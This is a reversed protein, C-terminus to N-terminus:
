VVHTSGKLKNYDEFFNVYSKKVAEAGSIIVESSCRSAAIAAAMVIRHDNFGDVRKLNLDLNLNDLFKEGHIILGDPLEEAICSSKSNARGGLSNIMEAAAKIRDSEKLRLRAGNYFETKGDAFAAVVALIPLLDPTADIDIKQAKLKGPSVTINNNKIEVKAGFNKLFELIKKDGQASNIDLGSVSIEANLAGAALFFAAGSWDGGVSIDEPSKFKNYSAIEYINKNLKVNVGFDNMAKLTINVYDASKLPSTLIIESDDDLVPLALLLGTIYQSSIDGAIFFKGSKLKGNTEFPLKENSFNVGHESMAKLLDNVPREPLRGSGKFVANDCLAAAVPLMFRLTSGSERCDLVPREPIKNKNVPIVKIINNKANFEAGLARLCDITANIDDNLNTNIKIESAKDGALAACILIRHAESKSAPAAINGSLIKPTIKVNM